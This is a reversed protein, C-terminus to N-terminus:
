VPMSAVPRSRKKSRARASKMCDKPARRALLFLGFIGSLLAITIPDCGIAPAPVPTFDYTIRGSLPSDTGFTGNLTTGIVGLAEQATGTGIFPSIFSPLWEDVQVSAQLDLTITGPFSFQQSVLPAYEIQGLLLNVTEGDGTTIANGTVAITITDLTGASPNFQPFPNSIPYVSGNTLSIPPQVSISFTENIADARAALPALAILAAALTGFQRAHM